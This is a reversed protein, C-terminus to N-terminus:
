KVFEPQIHPPFVLINAHINITSLTTHFDSHYSSHWAVPNRMKAWDVIQLTQDKIAEEFIAAKEDAKFNIPCAPIINSLPDREAWVNVWRKVNSPKSVETELGGRAVNYDVFKKVISNPPVLPSGATVWTHVKVDRGQRYLRHLATHSLVTGWSHAFIYFPRNEKEAKKSLTLIMAMLNVVETGSDKADRTWQFTHVDLNRSAFNPIRRVANELNLSDGAARSISQAQKLVERKFIEYNEQSEIGFYNKLWADNDNATDGVGRTQAILMTDDSKAFVYNWVSEPEIGPITLIVAGRAAKAADKISVPKSVSPAQAKQTSSTISQLANKANIAQEQAFAPCSAVTGLLMFMGFAITTFKSINM